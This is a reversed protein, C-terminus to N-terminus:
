KQKNKLIFKNEIDIKILNINILFNLNLNHKKIDVGSEDHEQFLVVKFM